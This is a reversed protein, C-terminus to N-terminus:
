AAFPGPTSAPAHQTGGSKMEKLFRLLMEESRRDAQRRMRVPPVPANPRGLATFLERVTAEFRGALSEYNVRHAAIQNARFYGEWRHRCHEIYGVGSAIREFDYTPEQKPTNEQVKPISRWVGTQTAVMASVAQRVVDQRDLYIFTPNPFLAALFRHIKRYGEAATPGALAEMLLRPDETQLQGWLDEIDQWFIKVGLTGSPETRHRYVAQVYAPFNATGWLKELTPQFGRHFYEIPCGWGSAGHLAEGLLTSGSRPHACLLLTRHPPGEWDPYDAEAM